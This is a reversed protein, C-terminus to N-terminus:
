IWSLFKREQKKKLLFAGHYLELESNGPPALPLSAAQWHLLPLLPPEVRPDPLNGLPPCPLGGWYEQRSFGMSRPAQHAVTWLIM